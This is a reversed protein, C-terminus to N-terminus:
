GEAELRRMFSRLKEEGPSPLSLEAIDGTRVYKTLNRQLRHLADLNRAWYCATAESEAQDWRGDRLIVSSMRFLGQDTIVSRLWQLGDFVDAGASTYYRIVDPDLCGFVHIPWDLGLEALRRRVRSINRARELISTGLEGEVFGIVSFPNASSLLGLVSGIDVQRRSADEPKILFDWAFRSHEEVLRTAAQFQDRTPRPDGFDFTVPIITTRQELQSLVQRYAEISWPAPVSLEASAYAEYGGSDLFVLDSAYAASVPLLGHHIDYASVLSASTTDPSMADFVHNIPNFGRSSYSPVVLPTSPGGPGIARVAALSADSM